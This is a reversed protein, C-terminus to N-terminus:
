LLRQIAFWSGTKLLTATAVSANQAMGIVLNGATSSVNIWGAPRIAMITGSGAGGAIWEWVASVPGAGQQNISNTTGTIGTGSSWPVILGTTGTPATLRIKVDATTTSDYFFCTDLQYVGNAVVSLVLDTSDLYTTTSTRSLDVTQYKASRTNDIAANFFNPTFNQGAFLPTLLNAM